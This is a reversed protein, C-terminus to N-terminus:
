SSRHDSFLPNASESKFQHIQEALEDGPSYMPNQAAAGSSYLPSQAATGSAPAAASAGGGSGFLGGFFGAKKKKTNEREIASNFNSTRSAYSELQLLSHTLPEVLFFFPTAFLKACRTQKLQM